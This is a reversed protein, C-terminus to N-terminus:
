LVSWGVSAAWFLASWWHSELSSPTSSGWCQWSKLCTLSYSALRVGLSCRIIFRVFGFLQWYLMSPCWHTIIHIHTYIDTEQHPLLQKHHHLIQGTPWQCIHNCLGTHIFGLYSSDTSLYGASHVGPAMHFLDFGLGIKYSLCFSVVVKGKKRYKHGCRCHKCASSKRCAFWTMWLSMLLSLTNSPISPETLSLLDQISATLLPKNFKCQNM